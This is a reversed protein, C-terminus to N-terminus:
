ADVYVFDICYEIFTPLRTAGFTSGDSAVSYFMLYLNRQMVSVSNDNFTCKNPIMKTINMRKVVNMKFDNNAFYQNAGNSGLGSASSYGIKHTWRKKIVWYDTNVISIIDRLTGVPATISSGSQFLQSVDGATPVSSPTPKVYGLMMQVECPQPFANVTVDYPTPRLIYNLFVKIPKIVNGVRGGQGVSQAISWYGAQPCMPYANFEPSESVNGFSTSYNIQVSKNEIETHLTKKVYKKIAVSVGKTKKITRKKFTRKRKLAGKRKFAM